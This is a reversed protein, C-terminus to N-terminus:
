TEHHREKIVPGINDFVVEGAQTEDIKGFESVRHGIQTIVLM